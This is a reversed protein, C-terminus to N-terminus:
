SKGNRMEKIAKKKARYDQMKNYLITNREFLELNADRKKFAEENGAELQKVFNEYYKEFMRFRMSFTAFKPLEYALETPAELKSRLREFVCNGVSEVLDIPLNHKKATNEYIVKSRVVM